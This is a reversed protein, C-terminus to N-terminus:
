ADMAFFGRLLAVLNLQTFRLFGFVFNRKKLGEVLLDILSAPYFKILKM